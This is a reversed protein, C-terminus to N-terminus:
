DAAWSPICFGTPSEQCDHFGVDDKTDRGCYKCRSREEMEDVWYVM